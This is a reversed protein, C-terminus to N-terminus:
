CNNNNKYKEQTFNYFKALWHFPRNQWEVVLKNHPVTSSEMARLKDKKEKRIIKHFAMLIEQNPISVNHFTITSLLTENKGRDLKTARKKIPITKSYSPMASLYGNYVLMELLNEPETIEALTLKQSLYLNPLVKGSMLVKYDQKFYTKLAKNFM